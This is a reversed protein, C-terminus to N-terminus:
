ADGSSGTETRSTTRRRRGRLALGLVVLWWAHGPRGSRCWCADDDPERDAPLGTGPDVAITSGRADNSHFGLGGNVYLETGRWPGLILSAKPSVLADSARGGNRPDSSAVDFWYLDGRLGLVSRVHPSWEIEADGYLGASTQGVVDDRTM